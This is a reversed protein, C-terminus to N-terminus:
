RPDEGRMASAIASNETTIPDRSRVSEHVKKYVALTQAAAKRWSFEAARKTCTRAM